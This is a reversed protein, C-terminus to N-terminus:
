FFIGFGLIPGHMTQDIDLTRQAVTNSMKFRLMGYGLTTGFHKAFRWDFRATTAVTVDSGVGFGGGDAHLDMRWKKGLPKKYSLGILPDTVGPKRSVEAFDRVTASINLSMHRVGGELFLGHLVERGGMAQWYLVDLGIKTNPNARTASLGAWLANADVSWKSKEVRFGVFAAGNFSSSATGAPRVGGPVDPSNPLNPFQPLTVSAGMVPAWVFVPYLEVNWASPDKVWVSDSTTGSQAHAQLAFTFAVFAGLISRKLISM